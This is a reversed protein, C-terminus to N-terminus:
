AHLNKKRWIETDQVVNTQYTQTERHTSELSHESEDWPSRTAETGAIIWNGSGHLLRYVKLEHLPWISKNYATGKNCIRGERDTFYLTIDWQHKSAEATCSYSGRSVLVVRSYAYRKRRLLLSKGNWGSGEVNALLIWIGGIAVSWEARRGEQMQLSWWGPTITGNSHMHIVYAHRKKGKRSHFTPYFPSPRTESTRPVIYTYIYWRHHRQTTRLPVAM